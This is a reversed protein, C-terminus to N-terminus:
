IKLIAPHPSGDLSVPPIVWADITGGEACTAAFHRSALSRQELEAGFHTLRVEHGARSAWLETPCTATEAVFVTTDRAHDHALVMRDGGVVLRPKGDDAAVRYLHINGRDAVSFILDDGAWKPSSDALPSTTNRDLSTSLLRLGTGDRAMVGLQGHR